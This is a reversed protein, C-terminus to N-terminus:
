FFFVAIYKHQWFYQFPKHPNNSLSLQGEAATKIISSDSFSNKIVFIM